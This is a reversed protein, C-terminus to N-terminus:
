GGPTVTEVARWLYWAAVSRYPRFREGEGTLARPTPLEPTGYAISYGKRVGYDTVPWVDLRGLTFICFMHATWPGIGPLEVLRRVVEDDDGGAVAELDLEGAVVVRALNLITSAKARSLGAGRLAGDGAALVADPTVDGVAAVLKRHIAAAASGALQQYLVSEALASFYTAAAAPDRRPSVLSCPGHREILGAMVPDADALRGTAKTLARRTAM